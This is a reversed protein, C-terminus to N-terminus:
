EPPWQQAGHVVATIEVRQDLVLYMVIYPTGAVVLERSGAKRGARGMFPHRRLNEVAGEIRDTQRFAADIDDQGVYRLISELDAQAGPAWVLKM